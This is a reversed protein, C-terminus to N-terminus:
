KPADDGREFNYLERELYAMTQSDNFPTRVLTDVASRTTVTFTATRKTAPETIVGVHNGLRDEYLQITISRPSLCDGM